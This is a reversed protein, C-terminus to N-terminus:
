AAFENNAVEIKDVGLLEVTEFAERFERLRITGSSSAISTSSAALGKAIRDQM